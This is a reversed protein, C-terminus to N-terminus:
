GKLAKTLKELSASFAQLNVQLGTKSQGDKKRYL